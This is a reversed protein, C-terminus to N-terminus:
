IKTHRDNTPRQVADGVVLAGSRGRQGRAAVPPPPPQCRHPGHKPLRHTKSFKQAIEALIECTVSGVERM